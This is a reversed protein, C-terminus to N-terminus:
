SEVGTIAVCIRAPSAGRVGLIFIAAISPTNACRGAVQDSGGAYFGSLTAIAIRIKLCAAVSNNGIISFPTILNRTDTRPCYTNGLKNFVGNALLNRMNFSLPNM